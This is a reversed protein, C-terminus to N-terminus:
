AKETETRPRGRPRKAPPAGAPAADPPACVRPLPTPPTRPPTPTAAAHAARLVRECEAAATYLWAPCTSRSPAHPSVDLELARLWLHGMVPGLGPARHNDGLSKVVSTIAVFRHTRSYQYARDERFRSRTAEDRRPRAPEDVDVLEPSPSRAPTTDQSMTPPQRGTGDEPAHQDSPCGDEPCPRIALSPPFFICEATCPTDRRPAAARPPARHDEAACSPARRHEAARARTEELTLQKKGPM